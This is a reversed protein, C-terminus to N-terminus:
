ERQLRSIGRSQQQNINDEWANFGSPREFKKNMLQKMLINALHKFNV